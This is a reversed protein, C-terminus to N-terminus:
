EALAVGNDPNTPISYHGFKPQILDGDKVAQELIRTLTTSSITVGNGVLTELITKRKVENRHHDRVIQIVKNYNTETEALNQADEGNIVKFWRISQDLEMVVNEFREGKVKSCSLAVKGNSNRVEKLNLVVRSLAGFASAGRGKYADTAQPSGENFKGTHHLILVASNSKRALTKLPQIVEKKVKANDNEDEMNALASLTDVVILDPQFSLAKELVRQLHAPNVLDLPEDNLEEDCILCLNKRLLEKQAPSCTELMKKLDAQLEAKTAEGDVYMIRKPVSQENLLPEFPRNSCASIALNLMLTTKGINTSAVLEGINGRSLGLMVKEPNDFKIRSFDAWTIGFTDSTEKVFEEDLVSYETEDEGTVIDQEQETKETEQSFTEDSNEIEVGNLMNLFDEAPIYKIDNVSSNSNVLVDDLGKGLAMDWTAVFVSVSHEYLADMIALLANKVDQNEQWDMDFALNVKKLDRFKGFITDLLNQPTLVNIGAMGIIGVGAREGIVDAKLAGETLFVTKEQSILHPNVFHLPTGSSVGKEKDKSSLWLYKPKDNSDKRIQLGVIRGQEDRYPVYFGSHMRNLRWSNNEIFFGPVGELKFLKSLRQAIANAGSKSPVSAYLNNAIANDSLGRENLLKDSHTEELELNSLLASYVKDLREVSAKVTQSEKEEMLKTSTILNGESNTKLIHQYRGRIDKKGSENPTYKCYALGEDETIRCHYDTVRECKPCTIKGKKFKSQIFQKRQSEPIRM